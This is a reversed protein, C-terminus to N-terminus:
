DEKYTSTNHKYCYIFRKAVEEPALCGLIYDPKEKLEEETLAGQIELLNLKNGYSFKHCIADCLGGVRIKEGDWLFERTYPIDAQDLLDALKNICSYKASADNVNM